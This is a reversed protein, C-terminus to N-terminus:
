AVSELIEKCRAYAGAMKQSNNDAPLEIGKTVMRVLNEGYHSVAHKEIDRDKMDVGCEPCFDKKPM